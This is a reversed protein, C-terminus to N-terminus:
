IIGWEKLGEVSLDSNINRHSLPDIIRWYKTITGDPWKQNFTRKLLVTPAKNEKAIM